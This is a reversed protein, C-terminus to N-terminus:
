YIYIYSCVSLFDSMYVHLRACVDLCELRSLSLSLSLSVSLTVCYCCLNGAPFSVRACIYIYIYM